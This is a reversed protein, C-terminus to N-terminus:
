RTSGVFAGGSEFRRDGQVLCPTASARRVHQWTRPRPLHGFVQGLPRRAVVLEDGCTESRPRNAHPRNPRDSQSRIRRLRCPYTVDDRQRQGIFTSRRMTFFPWTAQRTRQRSPSRLRTRCNRRFRSASAKSASIPRLFRGPQRSSRASPRARRALPDRGPPWRGARPHRPRAARAVRRTQPRRVPADRGVPSSRRGGRETQVPTVPRERREGTPGRGGHRARWAAQAAELWRVNGARLSSRHRNGGDRARPRGGAFGGIAVYAARHQQLAAFLTWPRLAARPCEGGSKGCVMSACALAYGRWACANGDRYGCAAGKCTKRSASARVRVPSGKM